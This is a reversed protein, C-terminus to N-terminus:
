TRPAVGAGPSGGPKRSCTMGPLPLPPLPRWATGWSRRERGKRARRVSERGTGDCDTCPWDGTYGWWFGHGGCSRCMDSFPNTPRKTM